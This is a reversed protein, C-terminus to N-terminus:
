PQLWAFPSFCLLLACHAGLPNEPLINDELNVEGSCDRRLQVADLCEVVAVVPVTSLQSFLVADAVVPIESFPDTL